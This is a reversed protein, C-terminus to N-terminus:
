APAKIRKSLRTQNAPIRAEAAAVDSDNMTSKSNKDTVKGTM